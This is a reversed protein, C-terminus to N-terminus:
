NAANNRADVEAAPIPYHDNRFHPADGADLPLSALKGYRRADIWSHGGEFLLSYRRQKLLQDVANGANLTGPALPVLKGSFSRILNIDAEAGAYDAKGIKAEARLLILEENRIIPLSATGNGEYKTFGYTSALGRITGTKGGETAATVRADIPQGPLETNHEADNIISPHVFISPANLLNLADGSGTSYTYYVGTALKDAANDATLADDLFSGNPDNLAALVGDWDQMYAAVRARLARNFTRFTDPTDFGAFGNSLPFPFTASAQGLQTHAEDLLQVIREFMEAKSVMPFLGKADRQGHADVAGVSDRTNIIHLYDLASMTNAFGRIADKEADDFGTLSPNDLATVVSRANKINRYPNAWFNGGYAGSTADLGDTELLEQIYRPDAIDFVYSERGLIGLQSVYGNTSAIGVRSGIIIGTSAAQVLSKTPNKELADTSPNNFDPVELDGCGVLAVAVMLGLTKKM